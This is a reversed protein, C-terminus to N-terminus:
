RKTFSKELVSLSAAGRYTDVLFLYKVKPVRKKHAFMIFGNSWVRPIHGSAFVANPLLYGFHM